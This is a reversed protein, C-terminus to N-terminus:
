EQTPNLDKGPHVLLTYQLMVITQDADLNPDNWWSLFAGNGGRYIQVLISESADPFM